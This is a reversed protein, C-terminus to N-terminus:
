SIISNYFNEGIFLKNNSLVQDKVTEYIKKKLMSKYDFENLILLFTRKLKEDYICNYSINVSVDPSVTSGKADSKVFITIKNDNEKNLKYQVTTDHTFCATKKSFEIIYEDKDVTKIVFNSNNNSKDNYNKFQFSNTKIYNEDKNFDFLNLINNIKNDEFIYFTLIFNELNKNKLVGNYTLNDNFNISNDLLLNLNNLYKKECDDVNKKFENNKLYEENYKINKFINKCYEDIFIKLSDKNLIKINKDNYTLIPYSFNKVNIDQFELNDNCLVETINKLVDEEINENNNKFINKIENFIKNKKDDECNTNIENNNQLNEKFKLILDKYKNDLVIEKNDSLFYKTKEEELIKSKNCIFENEIYTDNIKKNENIKKMGSNCCNVKRKESFAQININLCLAIIPFWYM